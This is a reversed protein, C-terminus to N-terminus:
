KSKKNQEGVVPEPSTLKYYIWGVDDGTMEVPCCTHVRCKKEKANFGFYRRGGISACVGLSESYYERIIDKNSVKDSNTPDMRYFNTVKENPSSSFVLPVCLGLVYPLM